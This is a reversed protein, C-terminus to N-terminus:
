QNLYRDINEISTIKFIVNRGDKNEIILGANILENLDKRATQRVVEYKQSYSTINIEVNEKSYLFGVLDAQRKNLGKNLVKYSILNEQEM